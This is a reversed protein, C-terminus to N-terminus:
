LSKVNELEIKSKNAYETILLIYKNCKSLYEIAGVTDRIQNCDSALQMNNTILEFYQFTMDLYSSLTICQQPPTIDKFSRHQQQISVLLKSADYSINIDAYLNNILLQIDDISQIFFTSYQGISSIYLKNKEKDNLVSNLDTSKPIQLGPFEFILFRNQPNFTAKYNIGLSNFLNKTSICNNYVNSDDTSLLNFEFYKTKEKNMFNGKKSNVITLYTSNEFTAIQSKFSSTSSTDKMSFDSYSIKVLKECVNPLIYYDDELNYISCNNISPDSTDFIYIDDNLKVVLREYNISSPNQIVVPKTPTTTPTPTPTPVIEQINSDIEVMNSSENWKVTAGLGEAVYRTPVYTRGNYIFPKDNGTDIIKGNIQIKIDNFFAQVNQMEAFVPIVLSFIIGVILGSAFVKLKNM